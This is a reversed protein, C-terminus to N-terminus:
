GYEEYDWESYKDQKFRCKGDEFYDCDECCENKKSCNDYYWCNECCRPM